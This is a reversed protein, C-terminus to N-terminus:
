TEARNQPLSHPAKSLRGAPTASSLRRFAGLQRSGRAGPPTFFAAASCRRSELGPPSGPSPLPRSPIAQCVLTPSVSGSVWCCCSSSAARTGRTGAFSGSSRPASASRSRRRRPCVAAAPWPARLVSPAVRGQASQDEGRLEGPRDAVPVRIGFPFVRASKLKQTLPRSRRPEIGGRPHARLRPRVGLAPM